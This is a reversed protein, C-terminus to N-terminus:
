NSTPIATKLDVLSRTVAGGEGVLYMKIGEDSVKEAVLMQADPIADKIFASIAFSANAKRLVTKDEVFHEGGDHSQRWSLVADNDQNYATLYRINEPDRVTFDGRSVGEYQSVVKNGGVWKNGNWRIHRTQKPGGTKAGKDIGANIAIHPQGQQDLHTSGNFTWLEGTRMALTKEDAVERTIPLKLKEGEVNSWEGTKTNFSMFYVDHRETTHGRGNIGAGGDWCVHYDYSVIINDGQGKGAWAYWSDVADIDTRRKHKLFSVPSAFTRGNDVSKQYVWDSRHAGHRFFLYIDGNDMKLAQNYTGFPTINDIDEWQSIDYPRKSIAHKNAGHHTNGLTNKGNSAQGGHGGYFIHIYGDDDILM